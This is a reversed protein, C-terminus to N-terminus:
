PRRTELVTASVLDVLVDLGPSGEEGGSRYAVWFQGARPPLQWAAGAIAMGDLLDPEVGGRAIRDLQTDLAAPYGHLDAAVVALAGSAPDVSLSYLDSGAAGAPTGSVELTCSAPGCSGGIALSPYPRGDYTWVVEALQSAVADTEVQDPVGGPRRSARMADLMDAATYPRAPEVAPSAVSSPPASPTAPTPSASTCAALIGAAVAGRLRM